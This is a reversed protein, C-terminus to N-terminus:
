KAEAYPAGALRKADTSWPLGSYNRISFNNLSFLLIKTKNVILLEKSSKVM